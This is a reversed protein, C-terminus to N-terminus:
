LIFVQVDILFTRSMILHWPSFAFLISAFFGTTKNYAIKGIGYVLAVCGLGFVTVLFTGNTISVGFFSFCLAQIYFGLPPQDMLVCNAIPLGTKLIGLVADYEWETDGNHYPGISLSVLLFGVLVSLLPYHESLIKKLTIDRFTHGV